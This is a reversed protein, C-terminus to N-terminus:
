AESRHQLQDLIEDATTAVEVHIGDIRAGLEEYHRLLPLTRQRFTALKVRVLDADDDVRDARDGGTDLRLRGVVVEPTCELHVVRIVKIHADVGRAQDGHRPLGNLVLIDERGLGRQEAFSLLLDRAIHFTENELLAGTRLSEAVIAVDDDSLRSPSQGASPVLGCDAVHRLIAGFDFHLCRRGALGRKELADGLPTKGSGTPGLLLIAEMLVPDSSM